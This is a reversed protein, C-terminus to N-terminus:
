QGKRIESVIQCHKLNHAIGLLITEGKLGADYQKEHIQKMAEKALSEIDEGQKFEFVFNPKGQRKAELVIDARGHGSEINSHVTYDNSLYVCMGLFLMHYANEGSGDHFSTCTLIIQEYAKKFDEMDRRQLAGFLDDLSSDAFGGYREAIKRFSTMVEQNPIRIETQLEDTEPIKTVTLYGSNLFLGWLTTAKNIEFFSTQLDVTVIAQGQALLQEFNEQTRPEAGLMAKVLLENSATNVWYANMKKNRAYNIISWPNYIEQEGFRYGDYMAKVSEDLGLDYYELLTKTEEPTLGFYQSYMSDMVTCVDLNNLGSFINEKAIRHIGTLMAKELYPNDKLASSYLSSFFFRMDDYYGQEYANIMPTDYEDILIIVKKGYYQYLLKSLFYITRNLYAAEEINQELLVQRIRKLRVSDSEELQMDRPLLDTAQLLIDMICLLSDLKTGKCDKFSLFIVPWTNMEKIFRTKSIELETFLAKSDKTIDFFERLMTMNLTKGFRRPRTILTVETTNQLWDAIMLTKDVYYCSKERIKLFDSVGIPLTKKM